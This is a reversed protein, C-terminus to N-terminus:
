WKWSISTGLSGGIMPTKWSFRGTIPMDYSMQFYPTAPFNVFQSSDFELMFHANVTYWRALRGDTNIILNNLPPNSPNIDSPKLNYRSQEQTTYSLGAYGNIGFPQYGARLHGGLNWITGQNMKVRTTTLNLWGNQAPDTKVRRNLTTPFFNLCGLSFGVGFYNWVGVELLARADAGWFGEYGMPLSFARSLNSAAGTPCLGGIQVQGKFSSILSNNIQEEGQWGLYVTLDGVGAKKFPTALPAIGYEKLMGDLLALRPATAASANAGTIGVESLKLSLLPLSAQVFLGWLLNQRLGINLVQTSFKGGIDWQAQPQSLNNVVDTLFTASAPKPTALAALNINTTTQNSWNIVSSPNNYADFVSILNDFSTPGFADFLPANKSNGAYSTKTSGLAYQLDIQTSWDTRVTPPRAQFLNTRYFVPLDAAQLAAAGCQAIIVLSIIVKKMRNEQNSKLPITM